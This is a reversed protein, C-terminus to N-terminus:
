EAQIRNDRIIKGNRDFDARLQRAFEAQSNATVLTGTAEIQRRADPERLAGTVETHLRNIIASPTGAAALLGFTTGVDFDALGAEAFTPTAPLQEMRSAGSLALARLKGAKVQPASLQVSILIVDIRGGILDNMAPAAGKYPVHLVDAGTISKFYEMSLHNSTGNGPTAYTFKTKGSKSAAIFEALTGTNVSPGVIFAFPVTVLRTVPILDKFVDYRMNKPALHPTTVLQDGNVLLMHGDTGAALVAETAINGGGGPRNIMVVPQGLNSTLRPQIARIILDTAGGGNYAVMFTIPKAPYAQARLITACLLLAGACAVNFFVRRSSRM